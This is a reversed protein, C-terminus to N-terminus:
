ILLITGNTRGWDDYDIEPFVERVWLGDDMMEDNCLFNMIGRHIERFNKSGLKRAEKSMEQMMAVYVIKYCAISNSWNIKNEHGKEKLRKALDLSWSKFKKKKDKVQSKEKIEKNKEWYELHCSWFYDREECYKKGRAYMLDFPLPLNNNEPVDVYEKGKCCYRNNAELDKIDHGGFDTKGVLEPFKEKFLKKFSNYKVLNSITAHIHTRNIDEDAEEKVVFGCTTQEMFWAAIDDLSHYNNEHVRMHIWNVGPM